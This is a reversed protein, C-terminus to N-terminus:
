LQGFGDGAAIFDAEESSSKRQLLANRHPFRGFRMIIDRHQQAYRLNNGTIERLNKPSADRLNNFLGVALHQDLIEESHEFPMYFFSREDWELARDDGQAVGQRAADLALPDWAYAEAKGRYINRPLQDTLVIFALRGRPTDLWAALEGAAAPALLGSFEASCQTDFAPDPQFWQRRISDAAIGGTLDGFWFDLLRGWAANM